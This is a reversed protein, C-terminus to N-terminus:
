WSKYIKQTALPKDKDRDVFVVLVYDGVALKGALYVDVIDQTVYCRFQVTYGHWSRTVQLPKVAETDISNVVAWHPVSYVDMAAIVGAIEDRRTIQADEIVVKEIDSLDSSRVEYSYQQADLANTVQAQEAADACLFLTEGSHFWIDNSEAWTVAQELQEETLSTSIDVGSYTFDYQIGDAVYGFGIVKWKDELPNQALAPATSRAQAALLLVALGFLILKKVTDRRHRTM